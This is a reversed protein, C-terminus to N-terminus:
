NTIDAALMAAIVVQRRDSISQRRNQLMLNLARLRAIEKHLGAESKTVLAASWQEYDPGGGYRGILYDLSEFSSMEDGDESHSAGEVAARVAALSVIAPSRLAEARRAQIVEVRNGLQELDDPTPLPLGVVNNMFANRDEESTDHDLFAIASAAEPTDTALRKQIAEAPTVGSGPGADIVGSGLIESAGEPVSSLAADVQQLRAIEECGGVAQGQPGYTAHAKRIQEATRQQAYTQAIAEATAAQFEAERAGNLSRQRTAVKIASIVQEITISSQTAVSTAMTEVAGRLTTQATTHGARWIPDAVVCVPGGAYAGQGALAGLAFVGALGLRKLM